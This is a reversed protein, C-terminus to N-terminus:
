SRAESTKKKPLTFYFTAGENLKGEAWIRGGHKNVIRKSIVLGIGTGEFEASSHLRGFLNFLKDARTGDFGVGNDKVYYINEKGEENGGIEINASDRVSSYKVANSLLNVLVQRILSEDGWAVPLNKTDIRVSRQGTAMKMEEVVSHLLGNMDIESKLMEKATARSFSLLDKILRSMKRALEDIASLDGQEAADLKDGSKKLLGRAFWEMVMLPERLDHSVSYSFSELDNYSEKLQKYAQDLEETRLKVTDELQKRYQRQEEEKKKRWILLVGTGASLISLCIVLTVSWFRERILAYVESKDVKAVIAWTSDPIYRLAALVEKGRYDMGDFIGEEGRAVITTVLQRGSIPLRLNLAADKRYHLDNLLVVQGGERRALMTEGTHSPTPWKEILPYLFRHPDIRLLFVGLAYKKDENLIPVVISLHTRGTVRSRYLDSFVLDKKKLAESVLKKAEPGIAERENSVSLMVTDKKNLILIDDYQYNEQFSKMWVLINRNNGTGGQDQLLRRIQPALLFNDRITAADALREKRWDVIRAVKLDAIALLEDQRVKKIEQKQGEYYFFGVWFILTVLALFVLILQLPTNLFEVPKRM